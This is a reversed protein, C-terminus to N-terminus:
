KLILLLSYFINDVNLTKIGYWCFIDLNNLHQCQLCFIDVIKWCYFNSQIYFIMYDLKLQLIVLLQGGDRHHCVCEIWFHWRDWELSIHLYLGAAQFSNGRPFHFFFFFHTPLSLIAWTAIHFCLLSLVCSIASGSISHLYAMPAVQHCETSFPSSSWSFCLELVSGVRQGACVGLWHEAKLKFCLECWLARNSRLPCLARGFALFLWPPQPLARLEGAPHQIGRPEAHCRNRAAPAHSWVTVASLQAAIVM